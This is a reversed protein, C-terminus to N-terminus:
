GGTEFSCGSRMELVNIRLERNQALRSAFHEVIFEARREEENRKKKGKKRDTLAHSIDFDAVGANGRCLAGFESEGRAGELVGNPTRGSAGEDTLRKSM